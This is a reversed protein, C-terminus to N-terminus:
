FCSNGEPRFSKKVAVKVGEPGGLFLPEGFTVNIKERGISGRFYRKGQFYRGERFPLPGKLFASFSFTETRSRSDHLHFPRVAHSSM